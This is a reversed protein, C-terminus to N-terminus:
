GSTRSHGAYNSLVKFNRRPERLRPGGATDHRDRAKDAGADKRELGPSVSAEKCEGADIVLPQGVLLKVWPHTRNFACQASQWLAGAKILVVADYRPETKRALLPVAIRNRLYEGIVAQREKLPTSAESLNIEM